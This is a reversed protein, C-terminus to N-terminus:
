CTQFFTHFHTVTAPQCNLTSYKRKWFTAILQKLLLSLLNNKPNCNFRDSRQMVQPTIIAKRINNIKDSFVSAFEDCKVVCPKMHVLMQLKKAM